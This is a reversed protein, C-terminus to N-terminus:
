IGRRFKILFWRSRRVGFSFSGLGRAKIKEGERNRNYFHFSTLAYYRRYQPVDRKGERSQIGQVSGVLVWKLSTDAKEIM